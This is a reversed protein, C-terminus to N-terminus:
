NILCNFCAFWICPGRSSDQLENALHNFPAQVIERLRAVKKQYEQLTNLLVTHTEDDVTSGRAWPGLDKGARKALYKAGIKFAAVVDRNEMRHHEQQNCFTVGHKYFKACRGCRLCLRSTRFECVEVVRCQKAMRRQIEVRPGKVGGGRLKGFQGASGGDGFLITPVAEGSLKKMKNVVNSMWAERRRWVFFNLKRLKLPIKATWWGEWCRGLAELYEDFRTVSKKSPAGAMIAQIPTIHQKYYPSKAGLRQNKYNRLTQDCYAKQSVQVAAVDPQDLRVATIISKVGPDIAILPLRDVNDFVDRETYMGPGDLVRTPPRVGDFRLKKATKPKSNLPSAACFLVCAAVGDTQISLAFRARNRLRGIKLVDFAVDWMSEDHLLEKLSGKTEPLLTKVVHVMVTSDIRIPAISIDAQPVVAFLKMTRGTDAELRDVDSRLRYMFRVKEATTRLTKLEVSLVDYREKLEPSRVGIEKKWAGIHSRVRKSDYEKEPLMARIQNNLWNQLCAFLHTDAHTSLNEALQKLMYGNISSIATKSLPGDYEPCPIHELVHVKSDRLADTYPPARYKPGESLKNNSIMTKVRSYYNHNPEFGLVGHERLEAFIHHKAVLSTLVRLKNVYVIADRLLPRPDVDGGRVISSLSTKVTFHRLWEAAPDVDVGLDRKRGRPMDNSPAETTTPSENTFGSLQKTPLDRQSM